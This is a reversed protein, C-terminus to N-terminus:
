PAPPTVVVPPPPPEEIPGPVCVALLNDVAIRWDSLEEGVALPHLSCGRVIPDRVVPEEIVRYGCSLTAATPGRGARLASFIEQLDPRALARRQVETKEIYNDCINTEIGPLNTTQAVAVGALGWVILATVGSKHM